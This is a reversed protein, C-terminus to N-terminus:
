ALERLLKGVKDKESLLPNQLPWEIGIIPDNWLLCGEHAPNYYDTCKYEFDATDSLVVFGHALGPPIWFQTKNEESLIVGEWVGYTPSDQRIDVAVDFVEGRVVRVLKGQPNIKQFHLGRLVGKVSRSHNDQVFNLDINLMEKYRKEEFTELFFGRADGFVKPQIIKLGSVKTDIVKM